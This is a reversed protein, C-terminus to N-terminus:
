GVVASKKDTASQSLGFVRLRDEDYVFWGDVKKGALVLPLWHRDDDWMKKYDLEDFGFWKPRMEESENAKGMLGGAVFIHVVGVVEATGLFIMRGREELIRARVGIEEKLERKAAEMLGEGKEPKGGFGNWKGEGLGRKKMGLLVRGGEIPLVLTFDQVKGEWLEKVMVCKELGFEGVRTRILQKLYGGCGLEEGIDRALSRIYVGAGTKVRLWLKPWEYEVVEIKKVERIRPELEVRKGKRALKYAEKGKVKVASYLPPTQWIEGVFKKTAKEIDRCTPVEDDQVQKLIEEGEGDDTSTNVGLKVEAVYEKEKKVETALKKTAERGIGLVLVGEALPDLTGAHGVKREGTVRRVADVVDHSTVGRPKYVGVMGRTEKNLEGIM